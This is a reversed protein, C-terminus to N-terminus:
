GKRFVGYRDNFVIGDIESEKLVFLADEPKECIPMGSLNLSTNLVAGVGTIKYFENILEWYEKNSEKTVVHPRATLDAPHLAGIINKAEEKTECAITMFPFEFRKPNVLYDDAKFDIISPTFPMWFDRKKVKRNIIRVIDSTRPDALISRNGLARPGFEMRGYFRGLIKGEALMRAMTKRDLEIIKFKKEKVVFKKCASLVYEDNYHTGLYMTKIPNIEKGYGNEDLFAFIAGISLSEDGPSAPVFINEVLDLKGVEMNAKINLAVGGSLIIKRKSLRNLWYKALKKIMNETYSQLGAAIVDFRYGELKNKFLFYLDKPLEKSFVEGTELNFDFANQFIEKVEKVYKTLTYAYPALGMVKYEHENPKMGLLLTIYRYIRGINFNNYKKHCRLRGKEYTWVSCNAEDGFGDITIVLVDEDRFNSAYFGYAAHGYEHNIFFIKEIFPYKELEKARIEQWKKKPEPAKYLEEIYERKSLSNWHIKEPLVDIYKLRKGEYLKPYWYKYQEEIYDRVSFTAERRLLYHEFDMNYTPIVAIKPLPINNKECFEIGREIANHPYLTENKVRTFREESAAFVINGEYYIACSSNIAVQVGLISTNHEM